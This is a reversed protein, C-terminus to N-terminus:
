VVNKEKIIQKREQNWWRTKKLNPNYKRMGSLDVLIIEKFSHSRERAELKQENSERLFINVQKQNTDKKRM